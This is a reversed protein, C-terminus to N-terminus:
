VGRRRGLRGAQQGTRGTAARREPHRPQPRRYVGLRRASRAAPKAGGPVDTAMSIERKIKSNPGALKRSVLWVHGTGCAGAGGACRTPSLLAAMVVAGAVTPTTPSPLMPSGM